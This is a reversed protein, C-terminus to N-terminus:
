GGQLMRESGDLLAEPDFGDEVAIRTVAERHTLGAAYLRRLHAQMRRTEALLDPADLGVEAAFSAVVAAELAAELWALRRALGGM